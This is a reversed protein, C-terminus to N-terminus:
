LECNYLKLSLRLVHSISQRISSVYWINYNARLPFQSPFTKRWKCHLRTMRSILLFRSFALRIISTPCFVEKQDLLSRRLMASTLKQVVGKKNGERLSLFSGLEEALLFQLRRRRPMSQKQSNGATPRLFARTSLFDHLASRILNRKYFNISLKTPNRKNLQQKHM